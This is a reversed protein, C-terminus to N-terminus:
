FRLCQAEWADFIQRYFEAIERTLRDSERKVWRSRAEIVDLYTMNSYRPIQQPLNCGSFREQMQKAHRIKTELWRVSAPKTRQDLINESSVLIQVQTHPLPDRVIRDVMWGNNLKSSVAWWQDPYGAVLVRDGIEVEILTKPALEVAQSPRESEPVPELQEISMGWNKGDITVTVASETLFNLITGTKGILDEPLCGVSVVRVSQAIALHIASTSPKSMNESRTSSEPNKRCIPEDVVPTDFLSLQM